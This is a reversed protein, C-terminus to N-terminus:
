LLPPHFLSQFLLRTGRSTASPARCMEPFAAFLIREIQDYVDCRQYVYVDFKIVYMFSLTLICQKPYVTNSFAILIIKCLYNETYVYSVITQM